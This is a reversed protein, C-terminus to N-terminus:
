QVVNCWMAGCQESCAAEGLLSQYEADPVRVPAQEAGSSAASSRGKGGRRGKAGRAAAPGPRLENARQGTVMPPLAAGPHEMLWAYYEIARPWAQATVHTFIRAM